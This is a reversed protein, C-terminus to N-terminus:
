PYTVKNTTLIAGAAPSSSSVEARGSLNVTIEKGNQVPVGVPRFRVAWLGLVLSYAGLTYNLVVPHTDPLYGDAGLKGLDPLTDTTYRAEAEIEASMGQRWVDSLLRDGNYRDSGLENTLTVNGNMLRAVTVGDAAVTGVSKPVRLALPLVSPTTFVSAAYSDSVQRAVYECDVQHYGPAPGFPFRAQRLVCGSAKRFQGSALEREFTMVPLAPQGVTYFNHNYPGSGTVAVAQGFLERLIFGVQHLDLPYSASFSAEELGPTAPRADVQNYLGAAGLVDDDGFDRSIASNHSYTNREVAGTGSAATLFDVQEKSRVKTARGFPVTSIPM